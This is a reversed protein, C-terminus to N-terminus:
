MYDRNNRSYRDANSYMESENARSMNMNSRGYSMDGSYGGYSNSRGGGRAYSNYSNGGRMSNPNYNSYEQEQRMEYECLVKDINKISHALKDIMELSQADIKEKSGFEELENCLMDRLKYVKHM